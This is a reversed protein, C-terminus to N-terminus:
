QCAVLGAPVASRGDPPVLGLETMLEATTTSPDSWQQWDAWLTDRIFTANASDTRLKIFGDLLCVYLAFITLTVEYRVSSAFWTTLGVGATLGLGLILDGRQMHTALYVSAFLVAVTAAGLRVWGGPGSRGPWPSHRQRRPRLSVAQPM